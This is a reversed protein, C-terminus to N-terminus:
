SLLSSLVSWPLRASSKTAFRGRYCSIWPSWSPASCCFIARAAHTSTMWVADNRLTAAVRFGYLRNRPVWRFLLPISMLILVPGLAEM